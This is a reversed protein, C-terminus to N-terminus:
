GAHDVEKLFPYKRLIESSHCLSETIDKRRMPFTQKILATLVTQNKKGKKSIEARIQNNHREFSTEDEGAPITPSTLVTPKVNSSSSDSLKNSSPKRVAKLRRFEKFCNILTQM